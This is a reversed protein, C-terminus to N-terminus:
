ANRNRLYVFWYVAAVMISGGIINGITVPLLNGVLFNGWTLDPFDAATKGISEWFADPAGSKIFLGLPIFYINAICHEFGGAVFAAVPLVVTFFKDVNSRASYCMWSALCVLANCMIGLTVAPVFALSSKAQATSLAALGVAGHGFSYQTTLFM